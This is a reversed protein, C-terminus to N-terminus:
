RPFCEPGPDQGVALRPVRAAAPGLSAAIRTPTGNAGAAFRGASTGAAAGTSEQSELSGADVIAADVTGADMIAAELRVAQRVADGAAVDVPFPRALPTSYTKFSGDTWNRQDETEFVDGTFSLRFATGADADAWELAAIDMFPQHPSIDNPFQAATSGGDPHEVTVDRGADGPPHLVVLGIRNSRFTHVATGEFAIEVAAPTFDATLFGDYEVGHGAFRVTWRAQLLGNDQTVELTRVAPQPTRWDQDRVVAKVARLVPRGLYSIHALEDGVLEASWPGASLARRDPALRSPALRSPALRSPALRSPALRSPALNEPGPRSIGLRSLGPEDDPLPQFSM